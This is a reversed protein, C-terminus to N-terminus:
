LDNWHPNNAEILAIKKQRTWGKIQKERELADRVDSYSEFHVLRTINYRVTFGAVLKAKHEGIRRELNNTVGVYLTHNLSSLIYVFYQLM